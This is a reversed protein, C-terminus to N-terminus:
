QVALKLNKHASQQRPALGLWSDFDIFDSLSGDLHKLM